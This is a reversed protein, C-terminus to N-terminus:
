RTSDAPASPGDAADDGFYGSLYPFDMLGAYLLWLGFVVLGLSGAVFALMHLAQGLTSSFLGVIGLFGATVVGQVVFFVGFVLALL